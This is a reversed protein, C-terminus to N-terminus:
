APTLGTAPIYPPPAELLTRLNTRIAPAESKLRDVFAAKAPDKALNFAAWASQARQTSLDPTIGAADPNQHWTEGIFWGGKTEHVALSVLVNPTQVNLADLAQAIQHNFSKQNERWLVPRQFGIASCDQRGFPVAERVDNWLVDSTVCVNSLPIGRSAARTNTAIEVIGRLQPGDHRVLAISVAVVGLNGVSFAQSALVTWEGEPLHISRGLLPVTGRYNENQQPVGNLGVPTFVSIQAPGRAGAIQHAPPTCGALVSGALAIAITRMHMRM